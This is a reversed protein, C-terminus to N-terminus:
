FLDPFFTRLSLAIGDDNNSATTYDAVAKISEEANGMAVGIGAKELMGVDNNSDGFAIVDKMPIGLHGALEELASGKDIGLPLCEIFYPTSHCIYMNKLSAQMQEELVSRTEPSGVMLCKHLPRPTDTVFDAVGQVKMNNNRSSIAVYPNDPHETYITDEYYTMLTFDSKNQFAKLQPLAEEPLTKEVLVEPAGKGDVAPIEIYGGNYCLLLVEGGIERALPRMGYPPRGSALCLKVGDQQVTRMADMTLPTIVKDDNTLTGDLDFAILQPM